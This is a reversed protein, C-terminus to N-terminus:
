KYTASTTAAVAPDKAYEWNFIVDDATFPTGDHWKVGKKLKWTVSRGDAAVGGNERSPIEAALVPLLVADRDWRVLAECFLNAAHGDKIGVAFHPNLQTPAQWYLLRLPGGGGRKQPKYEPESSTQAIGADMLLLSAIPMALGAAGMREIFARRSVQGDRVKEILRRIAKENM